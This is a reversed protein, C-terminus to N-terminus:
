FPIRMGADDVEKIANYRSMENQFSHVAKELHKSLASVVRHAADLSQTRDMQFAYGMFDNGSSGKPDVNFVDDGDTIKFGGIIQHRTLIALLTRTSKETVAVHIAMIDSGYPTVHDIKLYVPM